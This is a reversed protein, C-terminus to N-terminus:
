SRRRFLALFRDEYYDFLGWRDLERKLEDVSGGREADRFLRDIQQVAAGPVGGFSPQPELMGRSQFEQVNGAVSSSTFEYMFKLLAVDWLEDVGVMVVSMNEDRRDLDGSIRRAIEGADGTVIDMKGFDNRYQYLIGPSNAGYERATERLYEYAEPSFGQLNLAFTPTVVAPRQAVVRGERVVGEQKNPEFTPTVVAPRQAVVRGERVVGEQKNPELEQYIPETVVYYSINTTGFTALRQRPFRIVRTQEIARRWDRESEM